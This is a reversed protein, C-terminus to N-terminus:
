DTIVYGIVPSPVREARYVGWLIPLVMDWVETNEEGETAVEIVHSLPGTSDRIGFTVLTNGNELRDADGWIPAFHPESPLYEWNVYATMASEDYTLEIARSLERVGEMGNDFLLIEGGPQLEPAHQHYFNPDASDGEPQTLTFEGNQGMAWLIDGSAMNMKYLTDQERSSLLLTEGDPFPEIANVHSWDPRLTEPWVHDCIHWTWLVEESSRDYLNLNDSSIGEYSAPCDGGYGLFLYQGSDGLPRIDHHMYFYSEWVLGGEWNIIAPWMWSDRGGILIGESVTQVETDGGWFVTALQHYWRYRGQPDIMAAIFPVQEFENTLNILTWGAAMRGVDVTIIELEPLWGPLTGVDFFTTEEGCRTESASFVTLQCQAEEWLGSLFVTHQEVLGEHLILTEFNDGCALEVQTTAPVETQWDVYVSLVNSPNEVVSLGDIQMTEADDCWDSYDPQDSSASDQGLDPDTESDLIPIEDERGQDSIVEFTEEHADHLVENATDNCGSMFFFMGCPLIWNSIRMGNRM